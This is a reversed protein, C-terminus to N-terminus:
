EYEIFESLVRGDMDKPVPLRFLALITPTLDFISAIANGNRNKKVAKGYLLFLGDQQHTAVWQGTQFIENGKFGGHITYGENPLLVLDPAADIFPGSFIEHKSYVAKFIHDRTKPDRMKKLEDSLQRLDKKSGDYSKAYVLGVFGGSCVFKSKDWDIRFDIGEFGITGDSAPIARLIKKPLLGRIVEYMGLKRAFYSTKDLTIGMKPFFDFVTDKTILLKKARLINGLNIELKSRVFGHDSMLILTFDRGQDHLRKVFWDLQKDITKWVELLRKDDWLFHQLHDIYFITLHLFDVDHIMEYAIEFRMRILKKVDKVCEDPNETALFKPHIRYGRQTLIGKLEKPYTYDSMEPAMGSIMFGDIKRPPFTHPVNIIGTRISYNNLHDWLEKSKFDRYSNSEIRENEIDIRLWGFVGFKAPNKGTSYCAWSPMTVPIPTTLKGYVGGDMLKRFTPLEGQQAWPEILDWTAGDLGIVIIKPNKNKGM